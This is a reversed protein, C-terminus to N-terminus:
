KALFVEETSTASTLIFDNASPDFDTSGNFTGVIFVNGNADTTIDKSYSLGGTLAYGWEVNQTAQSFGINAMLLSAFLLIKKM